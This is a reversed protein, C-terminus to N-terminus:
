FLSLQREEDRRKEQERIVQRWAPKDAEHALWALVYDVPGGYPEVDERPLFRSQFGTGTFPLPSRDESEVELHAIAYGTSQSEFWRPSWTIRLAIGEWITRHTETPGMM